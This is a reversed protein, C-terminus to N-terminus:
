AEDEVPREFVLDVEETIGNARQQRTPILSVFRWGQQARQQIIERHKEMIFRHGAVPGWEGIEMELREYEYQYM